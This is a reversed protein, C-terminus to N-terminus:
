AMMDLLNKLGRRMPLYVAFCLLFVVFGFSSVITVIQGINLPRLKLRSMFIMYVPLAELMVVAGIFAMAFIMFIIGGYGSSIKAVNEFEFKPYVAGIGVGLGTIGMTIFAITVTSLVMMFPTVKLLYNSVVILLVSLFLLPILAIWFKCWLFDKMRVPSSRIIWFSRGELSVAPFVFRVAIASLVFGALGMNLFAFLNQLYFTPIPSRDLPLVSFNYLYVVILAILLFLQSWQTSDRFFTLIDKRLIYRYRFPIPRSVIALFRDVLRSKSFRAKKGEQSKSWGHFYIRQSVWSGIVILALATSWLMLLFFPTDGRYQFLFPLLSEMAWYGPSFPMSSTKMATFYALLGSFAEPNVLKEPQLFRIFFYMGIVLFISLLFLIDKTRRAPFVNVLVMIFLIGIVAPIMLFPIIAVLLTLYYMISAKYVLGYVLFVPTGFMLVMWSSDIITEVFKTIYVHGMSVPTSLILNLEESLFYTSLSTVINSFILLSFFILFVMSLLKTALIDGFGEIGQFYHLVRYFAFFTGLWFLLGLSFLVVARITSRRGAGKILNRFSIARPVLLM